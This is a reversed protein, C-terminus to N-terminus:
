GKAVVVLSRAGGESANSVVKWYPWSALASPLDFSRSAAVALTVENGNSDYLTQFTSNDASVTFSISTGTFASPIVLGFMAYSGATMAGSTTQANAITLTSTTSARTLASATVNLADRASNLMAEVWPPFINTVSM